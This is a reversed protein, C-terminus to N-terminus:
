NSLNLNLISAFICSVGGWIGNCIQWNYAEQTILYIQLGIQTFGIIIFIAAYIYTVKFPYHTELRRAIFARRRARFNPGYEPVVPESAYSPADVETYKTM